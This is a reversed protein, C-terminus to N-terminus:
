RVLPRVEIADDPLVPIDKAIEIATDLDAVDVLYFGGLHEAAESFPGDTVLVESGSHRVTTATPTPRLEAGGVISSGHKAAFAEHEAYMNKSEVDTLATYAEERGVLLLAYKM